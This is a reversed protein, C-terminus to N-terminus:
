SGFFWNMVAPADTSFGVFDMMGRDSPDAITFGGSTMGVVALKADIGMKERYLRLAQSPHVRGMWTENDTYVAFCDVEIGCDLAWTMPLSCDTGKFPLNSVQKVADDLRQRPSINLATFTDSFGMVYHKSEVSATVLSMAVSGVRPTLGPVGAISGGAMSGSVDLALCYRKGTPEVNEFSLYFAGDLADIIKPDPTWTAGSRQGHGQQYVLLATLLKIPHLRSRRVRERDQLRSCVTRSHESLPALLGVKSMTGLNRVMAELPMRTLLAWWVTKSTLFQTPVAERPLGYELILQAVEKESTSRKAREFAWIQQIMERDHPTEGVVDWGNVIWDFIIKLDPDTTKPHSLRLLDALSWGDRSQYKIAQYALDAPQEQQLFWQGIARRAGRGWGRFQEMFSAFHLLHTGTRAVLQLRSLAQKRTELDKSASCVALVFLAPDNKPALGRQSVEVVRNLVRLGDEDICSLVNQANEKTLAQETQYYTGGESGLILFRDLRDWKSVQWSYGGANNQVQSSHPIPQSQPTSKTSFGKLYSM